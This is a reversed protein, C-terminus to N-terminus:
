IKRTLVRWFVKCADRYTKIELDERFMLSAKADSQWRGLTCVAVLADFLEALGWALLTPEDEKLKTRMFLPEVKVPPEVEDSIRPEIKFYKCAQRYAHVFEPEDRYAKHLTNEHEIFPSVYDGDEASTQIGILLEGSLQLNYYLDVIRGHFEMREWPWDM